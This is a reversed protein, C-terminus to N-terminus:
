ELIEIKEAVLDESRFQVRVYTGESGALGEVSDEAGSIETAADYHLQLEGEETAVTLTQADPDVAMLRGEAVQTGAEEGLVPSLALVLLLIPFTVMLINMRKM